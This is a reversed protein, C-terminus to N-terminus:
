MRGRSPCGNATQPKWFSTSRTRAGCWAMCPAATMARSMPMFPQPGFGRGRPLQHLVGTKIAAVPKTGEASLDSALDLGRGNVEHCSACGGKAFFLQEGAVADGTAQGMPGIQGSLSKIYTVLRWVSDSPLGSFSPMLTGPVGSRITQFLEPDGGGHRFTGTNLAPARESGAAGAGHCAPAPAKL